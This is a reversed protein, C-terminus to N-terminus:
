ELVSSVGIVSHTEVSRAMAEVVALALLGEEGGTEPKSGKLVCEGFERMQLIYSEARERGFDEEQVEKYEGGELLELRLKLPYCHITGQTGYIRLFYADASVYSSTLGVPIGSALQVIAAASDLVNNPMAVNTAFCSVRVVPGLLYQVTDVFHIGLQMMPLLGCTRPDAKWAPLGPQLGAPRSLNAEVAIIRGIKGEDLLARARRFASRRRTNHGVMLTLGAGKALDIMKRADAVTAAIPKEVFVHKHAAFAKRAQEFHLHNPTALVVAAVTPDELMEEFNAAARAGVEGAAAQNADVNVDFCSVLQLNGADRVANLITRGHGAIGAQAIRVNM